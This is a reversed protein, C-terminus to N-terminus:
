WGAINARTVPQATTPRCPSGIETSTSIAGPRVRKLLTPRGSAATVSAFCRTRAATRLEPADNGWVRMVTSRAGPKPPPMTRDQFAEADPNHLLTTTVETVKM